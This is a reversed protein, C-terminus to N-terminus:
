LSSCLPPLAVMVLSKPTPGHNLTLHHQHSVKTSSTTTLDLILSIWHHIPCDLSGQSFVRQLTASSSSRVLTLCTYLVSRLAATPIAEWPYSKQKEEVKAQGALRHPFMCHLLINGLPLELATVGSWHEGWLALWFQSGRM